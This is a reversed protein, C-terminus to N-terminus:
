PYSFLVEFIFVLLIFLPKPRYWRCVKTSLLYEWNLNIKIKQRSPVKDAVKTRLFSWCGFPISWGGYAKPLRFGKHSSSHLFLNSKLKSVEELCGHVTANTGTAVCVYHMVKIWHTMNKIKAQQHFEILLKHDHSGEEGRGNAREGVKAGGWFVIFSFFSQDYTVM